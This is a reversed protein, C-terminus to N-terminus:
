LPHPIFSLFLHHHHHQRQGGGGGWRAREDAHAATKAARELYLRDTIVALALLVGLDSLANWLTVAPLTSRLADDAVLATAVGIFAFAVGARWGLVWAAIVVALMYFETFDAEAPTLFDLLGIAVTLGGPVLLVRRDGRRM